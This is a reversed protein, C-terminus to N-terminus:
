RAMQEVKKLLSMRPIVYRSGEVSFHGSDRFIYTADIKTRCAVADCLFSNFYIVNVGLKSPLESLFALIKAREQHYAEVTILCEDGGGITLLHTDHRELCRGIDYDGQPPPAIIVVKKGLVRVADVIKKLDTIATALNSKVVETRGDQDRKLITFTDEAQHFPSSLLITKISNDHKLYELVSDNFRICRNAWAEDFQGYLPAIGLFPGCASKTAQMIAPPPDTSALLGPVLHMAFSDGWVLIKPKDSNRCAALPQFAATFNCEPSFGYNARRIYAFDQHNTLTRGLWLAATLLALALSAIVLGAVFRKPRAVIALHTPREVFRYLQYALLLSLVVLGTRILSAERPSGTVWANSFFAFLPWHVLYLSYSIDGIRRLYIAPGGSFLSPHRRLIIVFTALCVILTCLLPYDEGNGMTPVAILAFVAPWFLADLLTEARPGVVALAGISGIMLEWARTPLLYFAAAPHQSFGIRLALSVLLTAFVGAFWLRRPLLLMAAPVLFYYQEEISLSWVHLLPKLEAASEFYGTQQWLVFNATFTIAGVMQAVFDKMEAATLMVPAALAVALFTIYAAPLLRKARRFYFASLRFSKQEIGRAILGTILFGSIVYFIDVGLFGSSFLRLKAHYFVVALVAIGRLVQIDARLAHAAEGPM